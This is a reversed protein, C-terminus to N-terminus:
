APGDRWRTRRPGPRRERSERGSTSPPTRRRSAGGLLLSWDTHREFGTGFAVHELTGTYGDVVRRGQLGDTSTDSYRAIRVFGRDAEPREADRWTWGATAALAESRTAATWDGWGDSEPVVRSAPRFGDRVPVPDMRRGGPGGRRDPAVRGAFPRRLRRRGRPGAPRRAGSRLEGASGRGSRPAGGRRERARARLLGGAADLRDRNGFHREGVARVPLAPKRRLLGRPHRPYPGPALHLKGHRRPQGPEGRPQRRRDRAAPGHPRHRRRAPRGRVAGHGVPRRGCPVAAPRRHQAPRVRRGGGAAPRHRRAHKFSPSLQREGIARHRNAPRPIRLALLRCPRDLGRPRLDRAQRDRRDRDDGPGRPVRLRHRAASNGAAPRRHNCYAMVSACVGSHAFDFESALPSREGNVWAHPDADDQFPAPRGHVAVVNPGTWTGRDTDAYPATASCGNVARGRASCMGSRTPLCISCPPRGPTGSINRTSRSEGSVRSGTVSRPQSGSSGGRGTFDGAIDNDKIDIELRDSTEGAPGVWLRAELRDDNWLTGKFEGPSRDWTAWTDAIRRSWAKGSRELLARFAPDFRM